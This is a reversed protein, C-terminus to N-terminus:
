LPDQYRIRKQIWSVMSIGFDPSQRACLHMDLDPRGLARRDM